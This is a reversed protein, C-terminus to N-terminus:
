LNWRMFACYVSQKLACRTTSEVTDFNGTLANSFSSELTSANRDCADVPKLHGSHKPITRTQLLLKPTEEEVVTGETLSPKRASLFKSVSAEQHKLIRDIM